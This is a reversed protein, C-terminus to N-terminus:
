RPGAAAAAPTPMGVLARAADLKRQVAPEMAGTVALREWAQVALMLHVQGLNARATRHNPDNRLAAQLAVLAEDLRGARAQLLAINNMPDPLEPYLQALRGFVALADEDRGMDMLVVGQLFRAQADRPNADAIKQALQLAAAHDGRQALLKVE